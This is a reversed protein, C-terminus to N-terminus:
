QIPNPSSLDGFPRLNFHEAALNRVASNWSSPNSRALRKRLIGAVATKDGPSASAFAALAKPLPATRAITIMGKAPNTAGENAATEGHRLFSIGDEPADGESLNMTRPDLTLLQGPKEKGKTTMVETDISKDAQAGKALWARLAVIDRYHTINLPHDGPKWDALQEQVHGILPHLFGNFSEGPERSYRGAGPIPEDPRNRIRDALDALREPTVAQGEHQGLTWPELAETVRVQGAQPNTAAVRGATDMARGLPSSYIATFKGANRQAVADADARGKDNLPINWKGRFYEASENAPTASAPVAGDALM